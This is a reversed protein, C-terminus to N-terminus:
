GMVVHCFKFGNSNVWTLIESFTELLQITGPKFWLLHRMDYRIKIFLRKYQLYLLPLFIKKQSGNFWFYQNTDKTDPM